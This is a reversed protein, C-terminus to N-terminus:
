KRYGICERPNGFNISYEEIVGSVLTNAGIVSGKKIHTGDLITVGAGIWVDNEIIIGGKSPAFRQKMILKGKDMFAHNVPVLYCGPGIQVYDGITIGNGSYLVTFANLYVRKGIRIDGSGGVFKIKVFDDVVCDKGVYLNSDRISTEISCLNGIKASKDIFNAM